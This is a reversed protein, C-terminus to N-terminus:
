TATKLGTRNRANKKGSARAIYLEFLKQLRETDNRFRRGIYIRELVEDNREHLMFGGCAPIEYTRTSTLDTMAETIGMIGLNVKAACVAAALRDAYLM